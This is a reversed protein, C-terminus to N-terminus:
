HGLLVSPYFPFLTSLVQSAEGGWLIIQTLKELLLHFFLQFAKTSLVLWHTLLLSLSLSLPPRKVALIEWLSEAYTTDRCVSAESHSRGILHQMLLVIRLM